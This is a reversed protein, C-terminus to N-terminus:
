TAARVIPLGGRRLVDSVIRPYLRREVEKIREHLREPSDDPEVPVAQQALVPGADLEATVVHVTCGSQSAGSSIAQEPANLGRFSPLLSPHTNLVIGEFHDFFCADLVTAFGAMAVLGIGKRGLEEALSASYQARDFTGKGLHREFRLLPVGATEAVQEAGCPRDVVVLEVPLGAKLIADLITGGGSALVALHVPQM